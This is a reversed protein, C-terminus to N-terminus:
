LELPIDLLGDELPPVATVSAPARRIDGPFHGAWIIAKDPEAVSVLVDGGPLPWQPSTQCRAAHGCLASASPAALAASNFIGYCIVSIAVTLM